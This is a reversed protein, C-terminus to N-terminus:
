FGLELRRSSHDRYVSVQGSAMDDGCLRWRVIRLQQRAASSTPPRIALVAVHTVDDCIICPEAQKVFTHAAMREVGLVCLSEPLLAFLHDALAERLLQAFSGCIRPVPSLPSMMM